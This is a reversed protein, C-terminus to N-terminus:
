RCWCGPLLVLFGDTISIWGVSLWQYVPKMGSCRTLDRFSCLIFKRGTVDTQCWQFHNHESFFTSVSYLGCEQTQSIPNYFNNAALLGGSCEVLCFNILKCCLWTLLFSLLVAWQANWVLYILFMLRAWQGAQPKRFPMRSLSLFFFFFSFFFFSPKWTKTAAPFLLSASLCLCCVPLLCESHTEWLPPAGALAAAEKRPVLTPQNERSFVDLVKEM